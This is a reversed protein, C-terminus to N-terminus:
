DHTKAFFASVFVFSFLSPATRTTPRKPKARPPERTPLSKRNTVSLFFHLSVCVSIGYVIQKKKVLFFAKRSTETGRPFSGTKRPKFWSGFGRGGRDRAGTDV